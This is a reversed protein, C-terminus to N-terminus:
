GRRGRRSGVEFLSSFAANWGTSCLCFRVFLITQPIIYKVGCLAETLSQKHPSKKESKRSKEAVEKLHERVKKPFLDKMLEDTTMETAHKKKRPM